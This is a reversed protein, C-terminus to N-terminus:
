SKKQIRTCMKNNKNIENLTTFLHFLVNKKQNIKLKTTCVINSCLSYVLLSHQQTALLCSRLCDFLKSNYKLQKRFQLLEKELAFQIYELQTLQLCCYFHTLSFPFGFTFSILPLSLSISLSPFFSFQVLSYQNSQNLTHLVIHKQIKYLTNHGTPSRTFFRNIMSFHFKRNQACVCVCVSKCFTM